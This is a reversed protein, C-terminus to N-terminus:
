GCFFQIVNMRRVQGFWLFLIQESHNMYSTNFKKESDIRWNDQVQLGRITMKTDKSQIQIIEQLIWM